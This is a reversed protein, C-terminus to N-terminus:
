FKITSCAFVNTEGERYRTLCFLIKLAGKQGWYGYRRMEDICTNYILM